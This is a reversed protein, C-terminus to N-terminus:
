QCEHRPERRVQCLTDPRRDFHQGAYLQVAVVPWELLDPIGENVHFVGLHGGAEIAVHLGGMRSGRAACAARAVAMSSSQANENGRHATQILPSEPTPWTATSMFATQTSPSLTGAM